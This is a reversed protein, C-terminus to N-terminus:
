ALALSGPRVSSAASRGRSLFVASILGIPPQSSLWGVAFLQEHLQAHL